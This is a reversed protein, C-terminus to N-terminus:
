LTREPFTLIEFGFSNASYTFWVLSTCENYKGVSSVGGSGSSTAFAVAIGSVKFVRPIM